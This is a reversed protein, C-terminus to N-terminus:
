GDLNRRLISKVSKLTRSGIQNARQCAAEVRKPGYEKALKMLSSCVRVGPLYHPTRNLQYDVFDATFEGIRLAWEQFLEPTQEGYKRHAIPQHEPLTTHGGAVESRMHTAVRTGLSFIEVTDHTTRAEVRSGVLQYPVSYYHKGVYIHYDSKIKQESTWVATPEFVNGPLLMLQPREIREFLDRRCGPLKKFPKENLLVLRRAIEENIEQLSFFKRHRLAATIWRTVIQVGIEALSKDQPRRVRAPVIVTGYHAAMECYTRNLVPEAGPRIVASKLNDPVITQPVGGYFLFMRNHADIWDPLKQSDAAYAFVYKSSGLVSVFVEAFRKENGPLYYPIKRGAYDVFAVKGAQHTQRMSLDLKSIYERYLETFSSYGYADDPGDLCYDEWLLQMTVDAMLKQSHIYAWDPRRKRSNYSCCKTLLGMVRRDDLEKIKDWELDKEEAIARYRKITNPSRHVLDSIQGNSLPTTLILRLSERYVNM